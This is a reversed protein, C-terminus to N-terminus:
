KLYTTNDLVIVKCGCHNCTSMEVWHALQARTINLKSPLNSLELKQKGGQWLYDDCYRGNFSMSHGLCQPCRAIVRFHQELNCHECTATFSPIAGQHGDDQIAEFIQVMQSAAKEFHHACETQIVVISDDILQDVSAKMKKRLANLRDVQNM